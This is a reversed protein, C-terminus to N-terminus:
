RDRRRDLLRARGQPSMQVIAGTIVNMFARDMAARRIALNETAHEFAKPDFPQARLATRAAERLRQVDERAAKFEDRHAQYTAHLRAADADPLRGAMREIVSAMHDRDRHHPGHLVFAAIASILLANVALSVLLTVSQARASMWRITM